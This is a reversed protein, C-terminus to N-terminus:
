DEHPVTRPHGGIKETEIRDCAEVIQIDVDQLLRKMAPFLLQKADKIHQEHLTSYAELARSHRKGTEANGPIYNEIALALEAALQRGTKHDTELQHIFGSEEHKRLLPFVIGEEKSHHCRDVFVSLFERIDIFVDVPVEKGQAAARAGQKLRSLM